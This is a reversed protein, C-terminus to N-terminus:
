RRPLEVDIARVLTRGDSVRAFAKVRVRYGNASAARITRVLHIGGARVGWGFALGRASVREVTTFRLPDRASERRLVQAQEALLKDLAAVVRGDDPPRRLRLRVLISALLAFPAAFRSLIVAVM